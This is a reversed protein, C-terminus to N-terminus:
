RELDYGQKYVSFDYNEYLSRVEQYYAATEEGHLECEGASMCRLLESSVSEGYHLPDTYYDLNGTIDTRKSFDFVHVNEATLLIQAALEQAKLQAGIQRSRVLSDWYCVSYPPFFFYFETDPHEQALQLFNQTVNDSITELDEPTLYLEEESVPLLTVDKLVTAAGFSKYQAWNGYLDRDPTKEGARTYNIVALTKPVVEKNLLYYVDNWPNNDYLYVPYGTYADGDAPANLRSGDLSCVVYRLKPRYSYCRRLNEGLEHFTAGSYAIKLSQADWLADFESCKFNMSMSTGTIVSDYSYHRAMGDNEYRDDRLPYELFPLPNHYHLFPDIVATAAALLALILVTAGIVLFNWPKAKM